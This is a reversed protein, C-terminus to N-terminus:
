LVESTWCACAHEELEHLCFLLMLMNQWSRETMLIKLADFDDGGLHCEHASAAAHDNSPMMQAPMAADCFSV